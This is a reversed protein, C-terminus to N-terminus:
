TAVGEKVASLVHTQQETTLYPHVPVSLVTSALRNTVDLTGVRPFHAYAPQRHLPVPYYVATPVGKSLLHKSLHDRDSVRLTYQAWASTVEQPLLPAEVGLVGALEATYRAAIESRANLEEPFTELKALLVAAQLTDLRGNIGIRVNDYKDTGQGHVRLSRLTAALDPDDTLVAGGDGYCGLPKAPFFSTATLPALTGVRAGSRSAGLSQAADAIITAGSGELARAIASYDAVLGFLDVPIVARLELGESRCVDLGGSVDAGSMCFTHPDCDVFVPVGGLLAVVEATAAFTFSPVLVADGPRLGVALLTLILADTGSACSIAFRSGTLEALRDELEFVEPGMVFSGHELVRNMRESLGPELRARQTALDLLQIPKM